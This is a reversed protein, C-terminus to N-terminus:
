KTFREDGGIWCSEGFIEKHHKFTERARFTRNRKTKRRARKPSKRRSEKFLGGIAQALSYVEELSNENKVAINLNKIGFIRLKNRPKLSSTHSDAM